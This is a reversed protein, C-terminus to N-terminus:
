NQLMTDENLKNKTKNNSNWELILLFKGSGDENFWNPERRKAIEWSQEFDKNKELKTINGFGDTHRISGRLLESITDTNHNATNNSGKFRTEAEQPLPKKAYQSYFNKIEVVTPKTTLPIIISYKKTKSKESISKNNRGSPICINKWDEEYFRIANQIENTNCFIPFTDDKRRNYQIGNKDIIEHGCYRGIDQLMTDGKSNASTVVMGIHKTSTLRKGARMAGRIIIVQSNRPEKKIRKDLESINNEESNFEVYKLKIRKLYDTLLEVREPGTLRIICTKNKVYKKFQNIIDIIFPTVSKTRNDVIKDSQLFRRKQNINSIGYYHNNKKFHIPQFSKGNQIEYIIHAFPTASIILLDINKNKWSNIPQGINIGLNKYLKHLPKDLGIAVHGEDGIILTKKKKDIKINKIESHHYVEVDDEFWGCENLDDKAQQKLNNDSLHLLYIIRINEQNKHMQKWLAITAMAVGSKGQQMQAHVVPSKIKRKLCKIIDKACEHQEQYIIYDDSIVYTGNPQKRILHNM